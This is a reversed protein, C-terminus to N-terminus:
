NRSNINRLVSMAKQVGIAQYYADSLANHLELKGEKPRPDEPLLSFLTRSDREHYFKWPSEMDFQEFLNNLITLDFGYGQGWVESIYIHGQNHDRSDLVKFYEQIQELAKKVSTQGEPSFAADRVKPDQKSWWELTNRNIARGAEKQEKPDIKIHVKDFPEDLSSPDFKVMGVTLVVTSPSLGLTEIDIMVNYEKM